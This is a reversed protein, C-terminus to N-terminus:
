WRRDPHASFILMSEIEGKKFFKVKVYLPTGDVNCDKFIYAIDKNDMIDTYMRRKLNIHEFVAEVVVDKTLPILGLDDLATRTISINEPSECHKCIKAKIENDQANWEDLERL